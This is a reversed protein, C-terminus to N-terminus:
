GLVLELPGISPHTALGSIRQTHVGLVPFKAFFDLSSHLPPFGDWKAQFATTGDLKRRNRARM